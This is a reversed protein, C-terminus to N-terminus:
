DQTVEGGATGSKWGTVTAKLGNIFNEIRIEVSIETVAEQAEKIAETVDATLNKQEGGPLEVAINTLIKEADPMTCAEQQCCGFTAGEFIHYGDLKGKNTLLTLNEAGESFHYAMGTSLNVADAINHLSVAIFEMAQEGKVEIKLTINTSRASIPPSLQLSQQSVNGVGVYLIGPSPLEQSIAKTTAIQATATAHQEMRNFMVSRADQNYLIVKYEGKALTVEGGQPAVDYSGFWVGDPTYFVAKLESSKGMQQWDPTIRVTMDTSPTPPEPEGFGIRESCASVLLTCLSLVIYLKNNRM